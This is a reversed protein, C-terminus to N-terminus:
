LSKESNGTTYLQNLIFAVLDLNSWYTFHSNMLTLYSFSLSSTQLHFDFRMPLKKDEPIKALIEELPTKKEEEKDKEDKKLDAPNSSGFHSWQGSGTPSTASPLENTEHEPSTPSKSRHSGSDSSSHSNDRDDYDDGEENRDNGDARQLKDEESSDQKQKQKAEKRMKKLYSKHLEFAVKDYDRNTESYSFIRAPRVLKYNKHFLPELRYAVPDYPHFINIIRECQTKKPVFDLEHGRMVIFVALPSGVCFLYKTKFSLKEDQNILIEKLQGDNEMLKKRSEHYNAYMQRKEEDSASDRQKEIAHTIFEDYLVLPSWNTLIDYAIVSGLSHAFISVPGNFKPHSQIFKSYTSNLCKIVGNIIEQRYLPSQYFMIDMAIRNLTNRFGLMRPLTITGTVDGDLLLTSRWEIPLIMPRRKENPYHKAMLSEVSDRIQTTNKAITGEHGKQGVGHIVLILDSFVPRGDDIDAESQYGRKLVDVTKARTVFRMFRNAKTNSHLFCENVSNWKVETHEDIKLAALFEKCLDSEVFGIGSGPIIHDAFRKLHHKEIEDAVEADLPQMTDSYFWTGRRIKINDGKWYISTVQDPSSKLDAEYLNDFVSVKEFSDSILSNTVIKEADVDLKINNLSRYAIELALSDHGKCATWKTEGSKLFFWRVEASKLETVREPMISARVWKETEVKQNFRTNLM